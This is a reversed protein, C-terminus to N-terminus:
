SQLLIIQKVLGAAKLQGLKANRGLLNIKVLTQLRLEFLPQAMVAEQGDFPQQQLNKIQQPNLMKLHHPRQAVRRSQATVMAM